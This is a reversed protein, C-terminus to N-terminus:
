LDFKKHTAGTKHVFPDTNKNMQNEFFLKQTLWDSVKFQTSRKGWAKVIFFRYHLKWLLSYLHYKLKHITKM